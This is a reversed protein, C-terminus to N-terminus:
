GPGPGARRRPRYKEPGKRLTASLLAATGFVFGRTERSNFMVAGATERLIRREGYIGPLTRSKLVDTDCHPEM